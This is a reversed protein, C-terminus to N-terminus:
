CGVTQVSLVLTKTDKEPRLWLLLTVKHDWAFDFMKFKEAWWWINLLGKQIGTTVQCLLLQTKM